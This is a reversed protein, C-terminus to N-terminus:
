WSSRPMEILSKKKLFSFGRASFVPGVGQWKLMGKLHSTESLGAVVRTDVSTQNKTTGEGRRMRNRGRSSLQKRGGRGRVTRSSALRTTCGREEGPKQAQNRSHEKHLTTHQRAKPNTGVEKKELEQLLYLKM